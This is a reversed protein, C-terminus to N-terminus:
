RIVKRICGKIFAKFVSIKSIDYHSCIGLWKYLHSLNCVLDSTMEYNYKWRYHEEILGEILKYFKVDMEDIPKRQLFSRYWLYEQKAAEIKLTGYKRSSITQSNVRYQFCVKQTNAIGKYKAAIVASIDDSGWALPLKFFGGNEKLRKTEFVFDGIFQAKRSTWRHWILSYVSEYEPRLPQMDTVVSKENIIETLGHYVGLRPKKEILDAYIELAQHALLDDDGMCIIYDGSCYNLAINWNDVVNIAGCNSENRYYKLRPDNYKDCIQKLNEPSADDVVIIEFDQFSQSLISSLTQGFYAAKFAPIAISFTM